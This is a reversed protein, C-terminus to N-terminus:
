INNAGLAFNDFVPAVRAYHGNADYYGAGQGFDRSSARCIPAYPGFFATM